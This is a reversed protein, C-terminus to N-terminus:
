KCGKKGGKKAPKKPAKKGKAAEEYPMGMPGMPTEKKKAM